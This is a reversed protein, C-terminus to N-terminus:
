TEYSYGYNNYGYGYATTNEICNFVIGINNLTNSDKQENLFNILDKSTYKYRCLYITADAYKAIQLSDAVLLIPPTDIVINKYRQKLVSILEDFQPQNILESPNPPIPGSSLFDLNNFHTPQIIENINDTIGSLYSSIGLDNKLKFDDFIKPKRMDLGLLITKENNLSLASAINISTFTKGEGPISSTVMIVNGEKKKNNIYFKIKSRLTRFAESVSSRPNELIVLNSDHLSKPIMSLIPIDTLDQIESRTSIKTSLFDRLFIIGTPLFLGFIFAIILNNIRKPGIPKLGKYIAKDIVRTDPLNSARSIGAQARKELLLEFQRSSAEYERQINVFRQEVAPLKEIKKKMEAIRVELGELVIKSKNLANNTAFGLNEKSFDIQDKLEKFLPNDNSMTNQYLKVKAFQDVLQLTLKTVIPDDIGTLSPLAMASYSKTSKLFEIIYNFLNQQLLLDSKENMVILYQDLIQSNESSIDVILNESRFTELLSESSKLSNTISELQEEIFNITNEAMLNKEELEYLKLQMSSANLYDAMKKPISGRSILTYINSYKEFEYNIGRSMQRAVSEYPRFYFSHGEQNKVFVNNPILKFRAANSSIWEDYPLPKNIFDLSEVLESQLTQFNYIPYQDFENIPKLKYYEDEFSIEFFLSIPQYHTKDFVITYPARKYLETNKIFKSKKFYSVEWGVKKAVELNHTFSSAVAVRNQLINDKGLNFALSVGSTALPNKSEQSYLVTKVEYIDESFYNYTAAISISLFVSLMVYPWAALTKFYIDKSNNRTSNM